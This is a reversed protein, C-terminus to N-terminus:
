NFIELIYDDETGGEYVGNKGLGIIRSNNLNEIDFFAFYPRGWKTRIIVVPVETPYQRTKVKYIVGVPAKITPAAIMPINEIISGLLPDGGINDNVDSGLTVFGNVHDTLYPGHWGRQADINYSALVHNEDVSALPNIFLQEFNAPSNFWAIREASTNEELYDPWHTDITSDIEGGNIKLDFPGTKPLYGTDKYFRLLAKKITLMEIQELNEYATDKVGSYLTLSSGGIVALIAIVIMLELLTFAKDKKLTLSIQKYGIM